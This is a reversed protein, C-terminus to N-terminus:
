GTAQAAYAGTYLPTVGRSRVGKIRVALAKRSISLDRPIPPDWVGIGFPREPPHPRYGSRHAGRYRLSPSVVTNKLSFPRTLWNRKAYARAFRRYRFPVVHTTGGSLDAARAKPSIPSGPTVFNRRTYARALHAAEPGVLYPTQEVSRRWDCITM